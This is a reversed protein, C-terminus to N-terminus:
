ARHITTTPEGHHADDDHEAARQEAGTLGTPEGFLDCVPCDAVFRGSPPFDLCVSCMRPPTREPRDATATM